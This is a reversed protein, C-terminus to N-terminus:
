QRSFSSFLTSIPRNEAKCIALALALSGGSALGGAAVLLVNQFIFGAACVALGACGGLLALAPKLDAADLSNVWLVSLIFAFFVSLALWRGAEPAVTDKSFLAGFILVALALARSLYKQGAFKPRESLSIKKELKAWIAASGSFAISGFIATLCLTVGGLLGQGAAHAHFEAWATLLCALGVFGNFLSTTPLFKTNRALRMGVFTGIALGGLVYEFREVRADMLTAIVAALLGIAALFLGNRAIAPAVLQRLALVFALASLLYVANILANWEM